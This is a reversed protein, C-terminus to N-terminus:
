LKSARRQLERRRDEWPRRVIKRAWPHADGRYVFPDLAATNLLGPHAQDLSTIGVMQMATELEDKIVANADARDETRRLATHAAQSRVTSPM